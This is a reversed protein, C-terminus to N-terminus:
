FSSAVMRLSGFIHSPEVARVPRENGIFPYRHIHGVALGQLRVLQIYPDLMVGQQYSLSNHTNLTFMLGSDNKCCTKVCTGTRYSM